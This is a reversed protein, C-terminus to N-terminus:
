FLTPQLPAEPTPQTVFERVWYRLKLYYQEGHWTGYDVTDRLREFTAWSVRYIIGLEIENIELAVVEGGHHDLVAVPISWADLEKLRHVSYEANKRFM